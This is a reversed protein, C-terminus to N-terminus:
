RPSHGALSACRQRVSSSRPASQTVSVSRSEVCAWEHACLEVRTLLRADTTGLARSASSSNTSRARLVCRALRRRPWSVRARCGLWGPNAPRFRSAWPSNERTSLPAPRRANPAARLPMLWSQASCRGQVASGELVSPAQGPLPSEGPLPGASGSRGDLGPLPGPLQRRTGVVPGAHGARCRASILLRLRM